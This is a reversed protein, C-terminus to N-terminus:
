KSSCTPLTPLFMHRWKGQQMWGICHTRDDGWLRWSGISRDNTCAWCRAQMKTRLWCTSRSSWSCLGDVHSIGASFEDLMGRRSHSATRWQSGKKEKRQRMVAATVISITDDVWRRQKPFVMADDAQCSHLSPKKYIWTVRPSKKSDTECSRLSTVESCFDIMRLEWASESVEKETHITERFDLSTGDLDKCVSMSGIGYRSGM